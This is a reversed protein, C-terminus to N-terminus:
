AHAGIDCDFYMYHLFVRVLRKKGRLDPQGDTIMDCAYILVDDFAPFRDRTTVINAKLDDATDHYLARLSENRPDELFAKIKVFHPLSDQQLYEYYPKTLGNITNKDDKDVYTFNTACHFPGKGDKIANHFGQIVEALDNPNIRFPTQYRDFGLNTWIKPHSTLYHTITESAILHADKVGDIKKIAALIKQEQGAPLTRNTFLLYYDLEHNAALERIRPLEGNIIRAFEQDKCSAGPRKTHKAQIIFKGTHPSADSPFHQATGSFRGDRGGDRGPAFCVTGTGLVEMCLQTVLHEFDQDDLEYLRYDRMGLPTV